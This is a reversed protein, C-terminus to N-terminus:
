ARNQATIIIATLEVSVEAKFALNRITTACGRRRAVCRSQLQGAAGALYASGSSGGLLALRAAPDRTINTLISGVERYPDPFDDQGSTSPEALAREPLLERCQTMGRTFKTLTDDAEAAASVSSEIVIYIHIHTTPLETLLNSLPM